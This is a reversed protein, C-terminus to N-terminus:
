NKLSTAAKLETRHQYAWETFNTLDLGYAEAAEPRAPYGVLGLWEHTASWSKEGLRADVEQASVCLPNVRRGAADAIVSAIEPVTCADGALEIEAANFRQPDALAAVTASGIDAAAILAVVTDPSTGILLEGTRLHPFMWDVKPAIFNEMMFAPKLITFVPFRADRVMAEVDEKSEWYNLMVGPDVHPYRKRWGTGSVSAQVFHQVAAAKAARILNGAQRRESDADALPAPQVSFVGTCGSCASRLSDVNDLDGEAIAMDANALGRVRKAGGQRVLVVVDFGARQLAAAVAGGQTGTAGTVLVKEHVLPRM